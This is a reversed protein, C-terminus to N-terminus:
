GFLFTKLSRWFRSYLLDADRLHPLLSNWLGPGAAAFARYSFNSHTRNFVCTQSETSCLRRDCSDAVLRSVHTMNNLLLSWFHVVKTPCRHWDARQFLDNVVIVGDHRCRDATFVVDANQWKDVLILKLGSTWNKEIVLNAETSNSHMRYDNAIRSYKASFAAVLPPQTAYHNPRRTHSWATTPKIGPWAAMLSSVDVWGEM